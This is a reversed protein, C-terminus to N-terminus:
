NENSELQGTDPSKDPSKEVQAAGHRIKNKKEAECADM